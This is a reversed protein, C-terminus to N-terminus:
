LGNAIKEFIEVLGCNSLVFIVVGVLLVEFGVLGFGDIKLLMLVFDVGIFIKKLEERDEVYRRILLRFSDVFSSILKVM